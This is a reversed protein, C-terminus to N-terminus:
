GRVRGNPKVRVDIGARALAQTLAGRRELTIPEGPRLGVPISLAACARLLVADYEGLDRERQRERTSSITPERRYDDLRAYLRRLELALGDTRGAGDPEAERAPRVATPRAPPGPPGSSPPGSSVPRATGQGNPPRPPAQHRHPVAREPSVGGVAATVAVTAAAPVTRGAPPASPAGGAPAYKLTVLEYARGHPESRPPRFRPPDSADAPGVGTGAPLTAAHSAGNGEVVIPSPAGQVQRRLEALQGSMYRAEVIAEKLRSEARDARHEAESIRRFLGELDALPVV